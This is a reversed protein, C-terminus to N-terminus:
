ICIFLLTKLKGQYGPYCECENDKVCKGQDIVCVKDGECIAEQCTQFRSRIDDKLVFGKQCENINLDMMFYLNDHEQRKQANSTYASLSVNVM